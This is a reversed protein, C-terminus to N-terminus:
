SNTATYRYTGNNGFLRDGTAYSNAPINLQTYSSMLIINWGRGLQIPPNTTEDFAGIQVEGPCTRYTLQVDFEFDRYTGQGISDEVPLKLTFFYDGGKLGSKSGRFRAINVLQVADKEFLAFQNAGWATAAYPDYFFEPFGLLRTNVGSQDYSKAVQQLSYNHVLGSGVIKAGQLKSENIQADAMVQTMGQTLPNTTGNLVFNITQAANSGARVNTGFAAAQIALLDNNIDAFLGNAQSIIADWVERMIPTAPGGVNMIGLADKEFKAIQDDEFAIGLARFQTAPVDYDLYATRVQISCDDTTVSKGPTGRQMYRVKVDRLYGSGDDVYSKVTPPKNELLMQMYGYPTIKDM